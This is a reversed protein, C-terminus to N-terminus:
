IPISRVPGGPLSPTEHAVLVTVGGRERHRGIMAEAFHRGEGDLSNFPEDLLWLASDGLLLRSLALRRRQGASLRRAPVAACHILGAQRLAGTVAGPIGDLANTFLLNEEATLDLKVGDQHGVYRLRGSYAAGGAIETGCWSVTGAEPRGLGCLLRLLSTKGSGNAGLVQLVEGGRVSFSLGSFLVRDNRICELSQAELLLAAGSRGASVASELNTTQQM